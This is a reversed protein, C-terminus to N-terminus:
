GRYVKKRLRRLKRKDRNLRNYLSRITIRLRIDNKNFKYYDRLESLQCTTAHIRLMLVLEAM